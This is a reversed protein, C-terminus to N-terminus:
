EGGKQIYGKVFEEANQELVEDIEDLIEDLEHKLDDTDPVQQSTEVPAEVEATAPRHHNARQELQQRM